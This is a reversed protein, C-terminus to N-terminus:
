SGQIMAVDNAGDGIALMKGQVCADMLSMQKSTNRKFMLVRRHIVYMLRAHCSMRVAPVVVRFCCGGCTRVKLRRRRRALMRGIFTSHRGAVLRFEYERMMTVINAKQSPSARCVCVANCRAGLEALAAESEANGLIHTLTRGDVVLEM